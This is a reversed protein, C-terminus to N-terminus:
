NLLGSVIKKIDKQLSKGNGLNAIVRQISKGRQRRSEVVRVYKQIEGTSSKTEVV